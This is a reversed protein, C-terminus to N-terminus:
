IDKWSLNKMQEMLETSSGIKNKGGVDTVLQINLSACTELEKLPIHVGGGKTFVDPKILRLAGDVYDTGDDWIITYNVGKINDIIFAREEENMFLHRGKRKLFGDGNVICVTLGGLKSSELIYQMIGAHLPDAKCSCAVVKEKFITGKYTESQFFDPKVIM